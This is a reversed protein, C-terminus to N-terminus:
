VQMSWDSWMPRNFYLCFETSVRKIDNTGRLEMSKKQSM